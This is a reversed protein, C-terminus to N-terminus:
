FLLRIKREIPTLSKCFGLDDMMNPQAIKEIFSATNKVGSIPALLEHTVSDLFAEYKTRLMSTTLLAGIIDSFYELVVLDSDIFNGVTGNEDLKNLLRIIGIKSSIEDLLQSFAISKVEPIEEFFTDNTPYQGKIQAIDIKGVAKAEFMMWLPTGKQFSPISVSKKTNTGSLFNLYGGYEDFLFITAGQCSVVESLSRLAGETTVKLSEQSRYLGGINCTRLIKEFRESDNRKENM